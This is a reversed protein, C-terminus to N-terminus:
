KVIEVYDHLENAEQKCNEILLLDAIFRIVIFDVFTSWTRRNQKRCTDHACGFVYDYEAGPIRDRFYAGGIDGNSHEDGWPCQIRYKGSMNQVVAGNSGEGMQNKDLIWVAIRLWYANFFHEEDANRDESETLARKTPKIIQFGFKGAIWDMSYRRQYNASVLRVRYPEARGSADPNGTPYKLVGNAHRKNNVGVPMRGYRSVDRITTDGGKDILVGTVFGVLFAKFRVMDACPEDFFYWLQFNNPSTEVIATPELVGVIAELSLGGKSGSGNGVDDVMLALGHGFSAEGRWYRMRQTRPNPTQISSSICAYANENGNIYKGERYPVPWWGANLKKGESDTQVTAEKAYGVMVREDEPIGRGLERLFEEAQEVQERLNL